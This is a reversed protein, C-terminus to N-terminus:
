NVIGSIIAWENENFPELKNGTHKKFLWKLHNINKCQCWEGVIPFHFIGGSLVGNITGHMYFPSDHTATSTIFKHKLLQKHTIM